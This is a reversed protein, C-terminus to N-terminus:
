AAAPRLEGHRVLAYGFGRVTAVQWGTGQLVRRLRWAYIRLIGPVPWDVERGFLQAMIEARSLRRGGAVLIWIFDFERPQLRRREGSPLVVTCTAFDLQPGPLQVPQGCDACRPVPPAFASPM